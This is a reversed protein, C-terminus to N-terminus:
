FIKAQKEFVGPNEVCFKKFKMHEQDGSFGEHIYLFPFIVASLLLSVVLILAMATVDFNEKEDKDLYFSQRGM